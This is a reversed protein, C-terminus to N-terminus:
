TVAKVWSGPSRLRPLRCLAGPLPHCRGSYNPVALGVPSGGGAAAGSRCARFGGPALRSAVEAHQWGHPSPTGPAKRTADPAPM